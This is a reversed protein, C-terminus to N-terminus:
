PNRGGDFSETEYPWNHFGTTDITHSEINFSDFSFTATSTRHESVNYDFSVDSLIMPFCDEFKFTRVTKAHANDRVLVHIDTLYEERYAETSYPGTAKHMFNYIETYVDFNEDVLFVVDLENFTMKEGQRKIDLEPSYLMVQGISMNGVNVSQILSTLIPLKDIVVTFKNSRSLNDTARRSM